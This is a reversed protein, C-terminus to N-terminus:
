TAWLCWNPVRIARAWRPSAIPAALAPALMMPPQQPEPRHQDGRYSLLAQKPSHDLGRKSVGQLLGPRRNQDSRHQESHGVGLLGLHDGRQSHQADHPIQVSQRGVLLPPTQDMEPLLKAPGNM